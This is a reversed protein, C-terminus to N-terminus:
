CTLFYAHTRVRILKVNKKYNCIHLRRVFVLPSKDVHVTECSTENGKKNLYVHKKFIFFLM